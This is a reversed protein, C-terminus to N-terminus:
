KLPISFKVEKPPLCEKSNCVMFEVSGAIATKANAKVTVLQVFDVKNSFQKVEVGFLPENLKELKGIETVAGNLTILPSKKFSVVTPAPGGEPTFQSYTHWGTQITATLHVEYKGGEIKKSTFSWNVPDKVQALALLPFSLLLSFILKRM